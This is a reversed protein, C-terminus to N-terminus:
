PLLDRQLLEFLARMGDRSVGFYQANGSPEETVLGAEKLLELHHTVTSPALSLRKAIETGRLPGEECLMQMMRYRSADALAKLPPVADADGTVDKRTLSLFLMQRNHKTGNDFFLRTAKGALMRVPLFYYREYPGRNRFTKGMRKEAVALPKETQLEKAIQEYLANIEKRAAKQAQRLCPLDLAKALSFFDTTLRDNERLFARLALFPVGGQELRSLVAALADDDLVAKKLQARSVDFYRWEGQRFVREEVSLSMWRKQLHKATLEEPELDLLADMMPLPTVARMGSLIETLYRFRNRLAHLTKEEYVGSLLLRSEKTDACFASAAFVAELGPAYVFISSEDLQRIDTKM